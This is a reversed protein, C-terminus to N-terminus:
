SQKKVVLGAVSVIFAAFAIALSFRATDLSGASIAAADRTQKYSLAKEVFPKVIKSPVGQCFVLPSHCVDDVANLMYLEAESLKIFDDFLRQVIEQFEKPQLKTLDEIDPVFYDYGWEVSTPYIWDLQFRGASESVKDLASGLRGTSLDM